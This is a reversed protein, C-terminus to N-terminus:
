MPGHIRPSTPRSPLCKTQDKRDQNAHDVLKHGQDSRRPSRATKCPTEGQQPLAHRGPPLSELYRTWRKDWSEKTLKEIVSKLTPVAILASEKRVPTDSLDAQYM